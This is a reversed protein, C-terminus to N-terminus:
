SGSPEAREEGIMFWIGLVIVLAWALGVVGAVPFDIGIFGLVTRLELLIPISIAIILLLTAPSPRKM